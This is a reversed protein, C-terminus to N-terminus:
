GGDGWFPFLPPRRTEAMYRDITRVPVGLRRAIDAYSLEEIRNLLFADRCVPPLERGSSCASGGRRGANTGFREGFCLLPAPSPAQARAIV